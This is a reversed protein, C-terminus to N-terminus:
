AVKIIQLLQDTTYKSKIGPKDLLYQLIQEDSVCYAEKYGRILMTLYSRSPTTHEIQDIDLYHTFTFIPYNDCDGVYMINGYRSERIVKSDNEIVSDFDIVIDDVGNEQKVVDIFQEKTILYMRGLTRVSSDKSTGIFAVGGGWRKSHTSFYLHFPLNVVRTQLPLSQDRCGVERKSSGPPKEGKIYCLFREECLNSGYSSYWVYDTNIKSM